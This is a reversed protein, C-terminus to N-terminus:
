TLVNKSIIFQDDPKIDTGQDSGFDHYFADAVNAIKQLCVMIELMTENLRNIENVIMMNSDPYHM